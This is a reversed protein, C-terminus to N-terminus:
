PLILISAASLDIGHPLITFILLKLNISPRYFAFIKLIWDENLFDCITELYYQLKEEDEKKKEDTIQSISLENM